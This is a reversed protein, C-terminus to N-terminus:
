ADDDNEELFYAPRPSPPAEPLAHALSNRVAKIESLLKHLTENRDDEPKLRKLVGTVRRVKDIHMPTLRFNHLERITRNLRRWEETRDSIRALQAELKKLELTARRTDSGPLEGEAGRTIAQVAPVFKRPVLMVELELARAIQILSDLRPSVAGNEIKSIQAQPMGTAASLDRQSLQNNERAKRVEFALHETRPDM